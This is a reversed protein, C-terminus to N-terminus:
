IVFLITSRHREMAGVIVVRFGGVRRGSEVSEANALRWKSGGKGVAVSTGSVAAVRVRHIVGLSLSGRRTGIKQGGSIRRLLSGCHSEVRAPQCCGSCFTGSALERIHGRM